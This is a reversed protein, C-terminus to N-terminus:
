ERELMGKSVRAWILRTHDRSFRFPPMPINKRFIVVDRWRAGLEDKGGRMKIGKGHFGGQVRRVGNGRGPSSLSLPFHPVGGM